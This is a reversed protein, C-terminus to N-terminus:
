YRHIERCGGRVVKEMEEPRLLRGGCGEKPISLGRAKNWKEFLRFLGGVVAARNEGCEKKLQDLPDLSGTTM